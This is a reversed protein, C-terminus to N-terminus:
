LSILLSLHYSPTHSVEKSHRRGAIEFGIEVAKLIQPLTGGFRLGAICHGFFEDHMEAEAQLLFM